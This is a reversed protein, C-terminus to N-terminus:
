SKATNKKECHSVEQEKMAKLEKEGTEVHRQFRRIFFNWETEDSPYFYGRQSSCIHVGLLRMNQVAQRVDATGVGFLTALETQSLALEEGRPLISSLRQEFSIESM